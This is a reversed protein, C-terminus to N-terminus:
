AAEELGGSLQWLRPLRLAAEVPSDLDWVSGTFPGADSVRVCGLVRLANELSRGTAAFFADHAVRGLGAWFPWAGDPWSEAGVALLTRVAPVDALADPCAAVSGLVSRGLGVLWSQFSFFQEASCMGDCLVYAAHWHSFTNVRGRSASLLTEFGLIDGPPSGALRLTLWVTREHQDSTVAASRDLLDWFVDLDM